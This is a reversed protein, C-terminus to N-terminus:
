MSDTFSWVTNDGRSVDVCRVGETVLWRDDTSPLRNSWVASAMMGVRRLRTGLLALTMAVEPTAAIRRMRLTRSLREQTNSVLLSIFHDVPPASQYLFMSVQM